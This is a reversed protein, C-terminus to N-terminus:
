CCSALGPAVGDILLLPPTLVAWVAGIFPAADLALLGFVAGAVFADVFEFVFAREPVVVVSWFAVVGFVFALELVVVGFVFEL